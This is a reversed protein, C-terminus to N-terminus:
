IPLYEPLATGVNLSFPFEAHQHLCTGPSSHSSSDYQARHHSRSWNYGSLILVPPDLQLYCGHVEGADRQHEQERNPKRLFHGTVRKLAEPQIGRSVPFFDAGPEELSM